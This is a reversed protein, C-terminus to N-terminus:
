KQSRRLCGRSARPPGQIRYRAKFIMRQSGGQDYSVKTLATLLIPKPIGTKRSFLEVYMLYTPNQLMATEGRHAERTQYESDSGTRYHRATLIM